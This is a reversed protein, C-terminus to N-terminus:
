QSTKLNFFDQLGTLDSINYYLTLDNLNEIDSTFVQGNLVGDSDINQDILEQEFQNDPVLTIQSYSELSGFQVVLFILYINKM